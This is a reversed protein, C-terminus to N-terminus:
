FHLRWAADLFADFDADDWNLSLSQLTEVFGDLDGNREAAELKERLHAIRDHEVIDRGDAEFVEEDCLLAAQLHSLVAAIAKLRSDSGARLALLVAGGRPDGVSRTLLEWIRETTTDRHACYETVAGPDGLRLLITEVDEIGGPGTEVLARRFEEVADGRDTLPLRSCVISLATLFVPDPETGSPDEACIDSYRGIREDVVAGNRFTVAGAYRAGPSAYSLTFTLEPWRRSAERIPNFAVSFGTDYHYVIETRSSQTREVDLADWKCGWHAARWNLWGKPGGLRAIDPEPLLRQFTLLDESGEVNAAFAAVDGAPGTVTLENQCYHNLMATERWVM